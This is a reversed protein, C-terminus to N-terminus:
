NTSCLIQRMLLENESLGNLSSYVERILITSLYCVPIRSVRSFQVTEAMGVEDGINQVFRVYDPLSISRMNDVLALKVCAWYFHSMAFVCTEFLFSHSDPYVFSPQRLDGTLFVIQKLNM